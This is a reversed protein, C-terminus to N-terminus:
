PKITIKINRDNSDNYTMLVYGFNFEKKLQSEVSNRLKNLWKSESVMILPINEDFIIMDDCISAYSVNHIKFRFVGVIQEAYEKLLREKDHNHEKIINSYM